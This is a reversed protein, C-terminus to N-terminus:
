KVGDLSLLKERLTKDEVMDMTASIKSLMGAVKTFPKTSYDSVWFSLGSPTIELYQSNPPAYVSFSLAKHEKCPIFLWAGVSCLGEYSDLTFDNYGNAKCHWIENRRLNWPDVWFETLKERVSKLCVRFEARGLNSGGPTEDRWVFPIFLSDEIEIQECKDM